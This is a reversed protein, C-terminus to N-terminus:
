LAAIQRLTPAATVPHDPNHWRQSQGAPPEWSRGAVVCATQLQDGGTRGTAEAAPLQGSLMTMVEATLSRTCPRGAATGAFVCCQVISNERWWSNTIAESRRVKFETVESRRVLSSPCLFMLNKRHYVVSSLRRCVACLSIQNKSFM